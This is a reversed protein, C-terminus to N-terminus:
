SIIKSPILINQKSLFHYGAIQSLIPLIHTFIDQEATTETQLNM